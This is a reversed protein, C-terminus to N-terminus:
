SSFLPLILILTHSHTHTEAQENTAEEEQVAGDRDKRISSSSILGGQACLNRKAEKKKKTKEASASDKKTKTQTM